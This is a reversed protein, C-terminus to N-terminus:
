LIRSNDPDGVFNQGSSIFIGFVTVENKWNTITRFVPPHSCFEKLVGSNQDCFETLM